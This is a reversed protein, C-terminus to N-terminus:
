PTWIITSRRRTSARSPVGSFLSALLDRPDRGARQARARRRRDRCLIALLGTGASPGSGPRRTLGGRGHGALGLPVPTSFQQFTQSEESRRTHTPLLSAIKALMRCRPRGAVRSQPFAGQRVQAPVPGDGGRLRRLGDELGLRRRRRLRRLRAGDRHAADHRRHPPGNSIPFSVGAAAQLSPLPIRALPLSARRFAAPAPPITM